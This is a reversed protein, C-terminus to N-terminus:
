RPINSCILAIAIPSNMSRIESATVAQHSRAALEVTSATTLAVPAVIGATGGAGADLSRVARNRAVLAHFPLSDSSPKAARPTGSAPRRRLLLM